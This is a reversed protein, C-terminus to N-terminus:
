LLTGAEPQHLSQINPWLPHIHASHTNTLIRWIRHTHSEPQPSCCVCVSGDFPGVSAQEVQIFVGRRTRVSEGQRSQVPLFVFGTTM